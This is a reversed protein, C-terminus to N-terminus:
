DEAKEKYFRLVDTVFDTFKEIPIDSLKEAGHKKIIAKVELSFGDQVLISLYSSTYQLPDFPVKGDVFLSHITVVRERIEFKVAMM